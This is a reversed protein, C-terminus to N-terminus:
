YREKSTLTNGIRTLPSRYEYVLTNALNPEWVINQGVNQPHNFAQNM